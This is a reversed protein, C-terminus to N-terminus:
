ANKNSTCYPLTFTSYFGIASVVAFILYLGNGGLWQTAPLGIIGLLAVSTRGVLTCVGGAKAKLLTEYLEATYIYDM